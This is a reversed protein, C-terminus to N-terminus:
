SRGRRDEDTMARELAQRLHRPGRGDDEGLAILLQGYNFHFAHKPQEVHEPPRCVRDVRWRPGDHLLGFAYAMCCNLDAPYQEAMSRLDDLAAAELAPPNRERWEVESLVGLLAWAGSAVEPLPPGSAGTALHSAIGVLERSDPEAEELRRLVEHERDERLVLCCHLLGRLLEASGPHEELGRDLLKRARATRPHGASVELFARVTRSVREFTKLDHDGLEARELARDLELRRLEFEAEREAVLADLHQLQNLCAERLDNNPCDEVVATLHYRSCAFWELDECTSALSRRHLGEEPSSATMHALQEFIEAAQGYQRAYVHGMALEVM